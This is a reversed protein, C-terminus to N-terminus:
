VFSCVALEETWQEAEVNKKSPLSDIETINEKLSYVRAVHQM